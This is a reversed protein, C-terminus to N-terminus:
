AAAMEKADALKADVTKGAEVYHGGMRQVRIPHLGDTANMTYFATPAGSGRWKHNQLLHAFVARDALMPSDFLPMAWHHAALPCALKNIMLCSPDVFGGFRENFM